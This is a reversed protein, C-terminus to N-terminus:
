YPRTPESIHILSLLYIICINRILQLRNPCDSAFYNFKGHTNKYINHLFVEHFIKSPNNRICQEIFCCIDVVENTPYILKGRNKVNILAANKTKKSHDVLLSKYQRNSKQTIIRRVVVGSIYTVKDAIVQPLQDSGCINLNLDQNNIRNGGSINTEDEELVNKKPRSSVSLIPIDDPICNSSESAMIAHHLVLRFGTELYHVYM